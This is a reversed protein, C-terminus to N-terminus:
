FSETMYFRASVLSTLNVLPHLSWPDVILPGSSISLMKDDKEMNDAMPTIATSLMKDDKEVNDAMPTVQETQQSTETLITVPAEAWPCVSAEDSRTELQPQEEVIISSSAVPTSQKQPFNM